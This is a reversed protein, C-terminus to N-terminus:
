DFRHRRRRKRQRIETFDHRRNRDYKDPYIASLRLNEASVVMQRGMTRTILSLYDSLVKQDSGESEMESFRRVMDGSLSYNKLRRVAMKPADEILGKFDISFIDPRGSQIEKVLKEDVADEAVCRNEANMLFLNLHSNQVIVLRTLSKFGPSSGVFRIANVTKDKEKGGVHLTNNRQEFFPERLGDEFVVFMYNYINKKKLRKEIESQKKVKKTIMIWMAREFHVEIFDRIAEHYFRHAPLFNGDEDLQILSDKAVINLYPRTTRYTTCRCYLFHDAFYKAYEPFAPTVEPIDNVMCDCVHVRGDSYVHTMMKEMGRRSVLYGAAFHSPYDKMPVTLVDGPKDLRELVRRYLNTDGFLHLIEWDQPLSLIVDTLPVPNSFLLDLRTDDELILAVSVSDNYAQQIAKLHSATTAIELPFHKRHYTPALLHRSLSARDRGDVGNVRKAQLGLRKFQAEMAMARDVSRDLNIYYIPPFQPYRSQMPNYIGRVRASNLFVGASCGIADHRYWIGRHWRFRGTKECQNQLPLRKGASPMWEGANTDVEVTFADCAWNMKMGSTATESLNGMCQWRYAMLYSIVLAILDVIITM